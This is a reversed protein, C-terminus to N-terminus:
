APGPGSNLLSVCLVRFTDVREQWSSNRARQLAGQSLGAYLQENTLLSITAEAIARIDHGDVLLGNDADSVADPAGGANGAVVPKGCANAELFVLGFGETDGDPLDRNPQVFVDCLAYH